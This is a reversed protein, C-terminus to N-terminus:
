TKKSRLFDLTYLCTQFYEENHFMPSVDNELDTCFKSTVKPSLGGSLNVGPCFSDDWCIGTEYLETHILIQPQLHVQIGFKVVAASLGEPVVLVACSPYCPRDPYTLFLIYVM